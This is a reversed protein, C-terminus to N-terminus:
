CLIATILSPLICPRLFILVAKNLPDLGFAVRLRSYLEIGPKLSVNRPSSYVRTAPQMVAYCHISVGGGAAQRCPLVSLSRRLEPQM